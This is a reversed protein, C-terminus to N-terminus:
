GSARIVRREFVDPERATGNSDTSVNEDRATEFAPVAGRVRTKTKFQVLSRHCEDYREHDCTRENQSSTSDGSGCGFERSTPM